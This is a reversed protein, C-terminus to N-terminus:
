QRVREYVRWGGESKKYEFVPALSQQVRDFFKKQPVPWDFEATPEDFLIRDPKSRLISEMLPAYDKKEMTGYYPDTVALRADIGTLMPMFYSDATVYAVSGTRATASLYDAKSQLFSAIKPRLWVGSVAVGEKATQGFQLRAAQTVSYLAQYNSGVLVPGVVVSFLVARYHAARLLPVKKRLLMPHLYTSLFFGYLFQYTWLYWREPGNVYYAFWLLTTAAIAARVAQRWSLQASLRHIATHVITYACHAFILLAFPDFYYKRGAFGASQQLIYRFMLAWDSLAPSQNLGLALILLFLAFGVIGGVVFLLISRAIHGLRLSTARTLLFVWYGLTLCIGTEPNNLILLSDAFGLWVAAKTPSANRLLVLVLVGVALGLFRWAAHNSFLIAAHNNHIWPLTLLLAFLLLIPRNRYWIAYAAVAALCFLIQFIQLVRFIGGIDLTGFIRMYIALLVARLAGYYVTFDHFLQQGAALKFADLIMPGHSCELYTVMAWNVNFLPIREVLGPVMLFLVYAACALWLLRKTRASQHRTIWSAAYLLGASILVFFAYVAATPTHYIGFAEPFNVGGQEPLTWAYLGAILAGWIPAGTRKLWRIARRSVDAFSHLASLNQRQVWAVYGILAFVLLLILTTRYGFRRDSVDLNAYHEVHEPMFSRTLLSLDPSALQWVLWGAFLALGIFAAVLDPLRVRNM